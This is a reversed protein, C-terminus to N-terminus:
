QGETTKIKHLWEPDRLTSALKDLTSPIDIARVARFLAQKEQDSINVRTARPKNLSHGLPETAGVQVKTDGEPAVRGSPRDGPVVPGTSEADKLHWPTGGTYEHTEPDRPREGEVAIEDRIRRCLHRGVGDIKALRELEESSEVTGGLFEFIGNLVERANERNEELATPSVEPKNSIKEWYYGNWRHQWAPRPPQVTDVFRDKSGEEQRFSERDVYGMKAETNTAIQFTIGGKPSQYNTKAIRLGRRRTDEDDVDMDSPDWTIVSVTRPVTSWAVSGIAMSLPNGLAKPAHSTGLITCGTQNELALLAGGISAYGQDGTAAYGVGDILAFEIENEEIDMGLIPADQPLTWMAADAGEGVRAKVVFVRRMDAGALQLRTKIVEVAEEFVVYLCNMPARPRPDYPLPEGTSLRAIVYAGFTSKGFSQVAILTHIGGRILYPEWLFDAVQDDIEDARILKMRKPADENYLDDPNEGADRRAKM